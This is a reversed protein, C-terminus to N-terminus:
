AVEQGNMRFLSFGTPRRIGWIEMHEDSLGGEYIMQQLDGVYLTELDEVSLEKYDKKCIHTIHKSGDNFDIKIEVYNALEALVLREYVMTRNKTKKVERFSDDVVLSKIACACLKCRVERIDGGRGINTHVKCKLPKADSQNFANIRIYIKDKPHM